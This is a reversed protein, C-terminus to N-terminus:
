MILNAEIISSFPVEQNGKKLILVLGEKTVELLKGRISLKQNIDNNYRIKIESNIYNQYQDESFFKRELGPSSVELLYNSSFDIEVDLLKSVHKSVKECDEITVGDKNDIYIRLTQSKHRGFIEIGWIYCGLSKIDETLIDKIYKIDMKGKCFFGM